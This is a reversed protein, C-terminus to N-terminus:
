KLMIAGCFRGTQGEKRYSFYNQTDCATCINSYEIKSTDVGLDLLQKFLIQYLDLYYSNDKLLVGDEYGLSRCLIAIDEGVEYCCAGIAPGIGAVIDSPSCGFEKQM